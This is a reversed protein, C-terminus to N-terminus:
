KEEKNELAFASARIWYKEDVLVSKVLLQSPLIGLTVLLYHWEFFV